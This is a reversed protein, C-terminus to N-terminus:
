EVTDHQIMKKYNGGSNSPLRSVWKFKSFEFDAKPEGRAWVACFCLTIDHRKFKDNPFRLPFVGVFHDVRAVIGNRALHRKVAREFTEGKLIRGGILSWM